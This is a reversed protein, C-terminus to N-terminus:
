ETELRGLKMNELLSDHISHKLEPPSGCYVMVLKWALHRSLKEIVEKNSELEHLNETQNTQTKIIWSHRQKRGESKILNLDM